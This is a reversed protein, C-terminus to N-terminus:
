KFKYNLLLHISNFYICINCECMGDNDDDTDCADGTGDEDTDVQDSNTLNSCNDCADGFGDGDMDTQNWNSVYQCNDQFLQKM